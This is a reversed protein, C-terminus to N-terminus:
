WNMKYKHVLHTIAVAVADSEDQNNFEINPFVKLIKDQIVEKKAQGNNAITKKVSTPTYYFQSYSHLVENFVGVVRYIVQTSKNFRTFGKEIAIEYPPYQRILEKISNRQTHLRQGYDHKPNTKISTIYIPKFNEIDFIAIGSNSM